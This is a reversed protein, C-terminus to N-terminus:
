SCNCCCNFFKRAISKDKEVLSTTSGYTICPSNSAYFSLNKKCLKCVIKSKVHYDVYRKPPPILINISQNSQCSDCISELHATHDFGTENQQQQQTIVMNFTAKLNDELPIHCWNCQTTDTTKLPFLNNFIVISKGNLSCMTCLNM